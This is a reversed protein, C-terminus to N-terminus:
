GPVQRATLDLLRSGRVRQLLEHWLHDEAERRETETLVSPASLRGALRDLIAVLVPEELQRPDGRHVGWAAAAGLLATYRGAAAFAPASADLGADGPGLARCQARVQEVQGLFLRALRGLPGSAAGACERAGATLERILSDTSPIGSPLQRFDLEFLESGLCFLEAPAVAEDNLWSQALRPLRPLMTALCANGSAPEFAAPAVDRALKQFIAYPGERLYSQAGLVMRLDEFADLIIRSNLYKSAAAYGSSQDPALHVARLAVTAFADAALLDAFVRSLTARVLPLEAVTGGHLRLELVALTAARLATDLPGVCASPLLGCALQFSRRATALGQGPRGLLAGDPLPCDDFVGGGLQVGRMGSSPVRDLRRVAGTSLMDRDVLFHSHSRSGDAPDTRALLVVADARRFGAILDERGSLLWGGPSRAADFGATPSPDGGHAEDHPCSAITRRDLLLAATSARQGSDGASWVDVGAIFSGFGYGFGLCPDRRWVTRLVEALRDLQTLRGGEARPVLAANVAAADLAREGEAFLEQREDAALVARHGLPNREDWPDGFALDIEDAQSLPATM